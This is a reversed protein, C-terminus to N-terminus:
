GATLSYAKTPAGYGKLDLDALHESVFRESTAAYTPHDLLVQGADAKACLRSALNVVGGVPKYDYRGDFGVVGLTAYGYALGV